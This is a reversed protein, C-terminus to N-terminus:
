SNRVILFGCTLAVAWALLCLAFWDGDTIAAVAEGMKVINM